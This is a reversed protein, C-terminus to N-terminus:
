SSEENSNIVSGFYDFHKVVNIGENDINLIRIEEATTLKTKKAKLRLGAEAKASEKKVEM